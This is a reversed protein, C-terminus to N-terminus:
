PDLESWFVRRPTPLVALKHAHIRKGFLLALAVSLGGSLWWFTSLDPFFSAPPGLGFTLLYQSSAPQLSLSM